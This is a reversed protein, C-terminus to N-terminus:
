NQDVIVTESYTPNDATIVSESSAIDLIPYTRVVQRRLTITFDYRRRWQTNVLEPVSRLVGVDALGISLANLAEMNQPVGIGDRALTANQQGAPGYFSAMVEIVEHRKLTDGAESHSISPGADPTIQTVGIAAWNDTACPEQPPTPQWRPRVMNGPLGTLGVILTQFVADLAADMAPATSSPVLYGSTSSDNPM